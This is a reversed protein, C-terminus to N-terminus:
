GMYFEGQYKVWPNAQVPNLSEALKILYRSLPDIYVHVGCVNVAVYKVKVNYEMGNTIPKTSIRPAKRSDRPGVHMDQSTDAKFEFM